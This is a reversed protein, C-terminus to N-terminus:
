TESKNANEVLTKEEDHRCHIDKFVINAIVFFMFLSMLMSLANTIRMLIRNLLVGNIIKVGSFALTGIVM